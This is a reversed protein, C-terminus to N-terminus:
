KEPNAYYGALKVLLRDAAEKTTQQLANKDAAILGYPDLPAGFTSVAQVRGKTLVDGSKADALVYTLSVRSDYRSAVDSANLGFGSRRYTPNLTLIHRGTNEGIRDRLRQMVFFGAEKDGQDAGDTIKISVDEFTLGNAGTAPAHLPTFGCATLLPLSLLSILTKKIM